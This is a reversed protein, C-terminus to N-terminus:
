EHKTFINEKIELLEENLDDLIKEFKKIEDNKDHLELKFKNLTEFTDNIEINKKQIEKQLSQIKLDKNEINNKQSKLVEISDQLELSILAIIKIDSVKGHLSSLKKWNQNLIKVANILREKENDQYSLKIKQNFVTVELDPM